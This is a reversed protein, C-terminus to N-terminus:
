QVLLMFLRSERSDRNLCACKTELKCNGFHRGHIVCHHTIGQQSDWEVDVGHCSKVEVEVTFDRGEAELNVPLLVSIEVQDAVVTHGHVSAIDPEVLVQVDNVLHSHTCDVARPSTAIDLDIQVRTEWRDVAHLQPRIEPLIAHIHTNIARVNTDAHGVAVPGTM